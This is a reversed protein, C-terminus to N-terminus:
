WRVLGALGGLEAILRTEAEGRVFELRAAFEAALEALHDRLPVEVPEADPCVALAEERSAALWGEPCRWVRSELKWPAVLVSLRGEQLASLTGRLGWVGPQSRVRDLLQLEQEREAAELVPGVTELIDRPTANSLPVDNSHAVVRNRMARSLYSEFRRTTEERGLLVLRHIEREAVARELLHALRRLFRHAWAEMRRSYKDRDPYPHLRALTSGRSPEYERLRQWDEPDVAAFVQDAEQIEGLFVEFFRWGEGALWLVGAREYEDIAYLLPTVYPEGWRAEVRGHALDVVPLECHLNYRQFLEHSAFLVLTRAEPIVQEELASAVRQRVAEPMELERLANKARTVWARRANEPKAPNVDAYLSLVPAVHPAIRERIYQVEDKTLM